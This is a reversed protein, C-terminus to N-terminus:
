FVKNWQTIARRFNWASLVVSTYFKKDRDLIEASFRANDGYKTDLNVILQFLKQFQAKKNEHEMRKM